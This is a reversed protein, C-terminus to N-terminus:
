KDPSDLSITVHEGASKQAPDSKPGVPKGQLGTKFSHIASGLEGAIKGIRGAGFILFVIVLIILMEPTGLGFM